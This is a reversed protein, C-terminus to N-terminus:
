LENEVLYRKVLKLRFDRKPKTVCIVDGLREGKSDGAQFSIIDFGFYTSIALPFKVLLETARSRDELKPLTTGIHFVQLSKVLGTRIQLLVLSLLGAQPPKFFHLPTYIPFLGLLPSRVQVM